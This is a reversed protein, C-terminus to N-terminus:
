ILVINQNLIPWDLVLSSFQKALSYKESHWTCLFFNAVEHSAVLLLSSIRIAVEIRVTDICVGCVGGCVIKSAIESNQSYILVHISCCSNINPKM